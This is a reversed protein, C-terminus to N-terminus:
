TRWVCQLQQVRRSLDGRPRGTLACEIPCRAGSSTTAGTAGAGRMSPAIKPIEPRESRPPNAPIPDSEDPAPAHLCPCAKPPCCCSGACADGDTQAGGAVRDALGALTVGSWGALAHITLAVLIFLRAAMASMM